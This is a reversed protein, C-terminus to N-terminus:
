TGPSNYLSAARKLTSAGINVTKKVRPGNSSDSLYSQKMLERVAKSAEKPNFNFDHDQLFKKKLNTSVTKNPSESTASQLISKESQPSREFTNSEDRLVHLHHLSDLELPSQSPDELSSRSGHSRLSSNLSALSGSPSSECPQWAERNPVLEEVESDSCYDSARSECMAEEIRALIAEDETNKQAEQHDMKCVGDQVEPSTNTHKTATVPAGDM